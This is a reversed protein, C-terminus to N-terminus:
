IGTRHLVTKTYFQTIQRQYYPLEDPYNCGQPCESDYFKKDNGMLFCHGSVFHSFWDPLNFVNSSWLAPCVDDGWIAEGFGMKELKYAFDDCIGNNIQQPNMQENTAYDIRILLIAQTIDSM